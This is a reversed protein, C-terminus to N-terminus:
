IDPLLGQRILLSRLKIAPTKKQTKKDSISTMYVCETLMKETNLLYNDVKLCYFLGCWRQYPSLKIKVENTQLQYRHWYINVSYGHIPISIM